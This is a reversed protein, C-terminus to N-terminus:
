WACVSLALRQLHIIHPSARAEGREADDLVDIRLVDGHDVLRRMLEGLGLALRRQVFYGLQLYADVVLM